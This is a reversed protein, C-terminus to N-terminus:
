QKTELDTNIKWSNRWKRNKPLDETRCIVMKPYNGKDWTSWVEKPVSQMIQYEVAEKETMADCPKTADRVSGLTHKKFDPRKEDEKMALITEIPPVIGGNMACAMWNPDPHMVKAPEDMDDEYVVCYETHFPPINDKAWQLRRWYHVGQFDPTQIM